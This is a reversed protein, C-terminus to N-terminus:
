RSSSRVVGIIVAAHSVSTQAVGANQLLVVAGFGIAGTAIVDPALAARLGRRGAFALAPAALAFRAVTLWGPTLWGLALKSLPVSLGWLVGSAALSLIATRRASTM